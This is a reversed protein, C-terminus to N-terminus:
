VQISSNEVGASPLPDESRNLASEVRDMLRQAEDIYGASDDSAM